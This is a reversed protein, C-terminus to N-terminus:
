KKNERLKIKIIEFEKKHKRALEWLALQVIKQGQKYKDSKRYKKLYEKMYGPKHNDM